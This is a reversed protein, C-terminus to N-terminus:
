MHGVITLLTSVRHATFCMTAMPPASYALSPVGLLVPVRM